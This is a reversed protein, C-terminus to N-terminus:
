AVIVAKRRYYNYATLSLPLGLAIMLVVAGRLATIFQVPIKPANSLPLVLLNMICWVFSGFLIASVIRNRQLIKVHPYIWFFFTTFTYAILFHFLMGWIKMEMQGEFAKKGFVGSAIFPLVNLPNKQTAVAYMIMAALIDLLGALFGAWLITKFPAPNRTKNHQQMLMYFYVFHNVAKQIDPM